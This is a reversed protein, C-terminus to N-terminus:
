KRKLYTRFTLTQVIIWKKKNENENNGNNSSLDLFNLDLIHM